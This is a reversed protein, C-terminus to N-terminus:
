SCAPSRVERAPVGNYGSWHSPAAQPSPRAPPPPSFSAGTPPSYAPPYISYQQYGPWEGQGPSAPQFAPQPAPPPPSPLGPVACDAFGSALMRCAAPPTTGFSPSAGGGGLGGGFAGGGASGGLPCPLAAPEALGKDADLLFSILPWLLLVYRSGTFLAQEEYPNRECRDALSRNFVGFYAHIEVLQRAVNAMIEERVRGPSLIAAFRGYRRELITNVRAFLTSSAPAGVHQRHEIALSLLDWSTRLEKLM